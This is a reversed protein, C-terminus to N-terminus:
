ARTYIQVFCLIEILQGNKGTVIVTAYDSYSRGHTNIAICQYQGSDSPTIGILTLTSSNVGEANTPIVSNQKEWTYSTTENAMCHLQISTTDNNVEM